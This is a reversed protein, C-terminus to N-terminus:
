RKIKTLCFVAHSINAHSSNLRTSNRDQYAQGPKEGLREVVAALAPEVSEATWPDPVSELAEGLAELREAAGPRALWKDRAKPDDVPGEYFSRALPWFEALPSM